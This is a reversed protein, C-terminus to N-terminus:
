PRGTPAQLVEHPLAPAELRVHLKETASAKEAAILSAQLFVAIQHYDGTGQDAVALEASRVDHPLLKEETPEVSNFIGVGAPDLLLPIASSAAGPPQRERFLGRESRLCTSSIGANTSAAREAVSFSAPHAFASSLALSALATRIM